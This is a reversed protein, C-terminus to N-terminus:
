IDYEKKVMRRLSKMEFYCVMSFGSSMGILLGIILCIFESM